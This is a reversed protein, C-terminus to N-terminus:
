NLMIRHRDPATAILEEVRIGRAALCHRIWDQQSRSRNDWTFQLAERPRRAGSPRLGPVLNDCLDALECIQQQYDCSPFFEDCMSERRHAVRAARLETKWFQDDM